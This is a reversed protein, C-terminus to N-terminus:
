KVFLSKLKHPLSKLLKALRVVYHAGVREYRRMQCDQEALLQQARILEAELGGIEKNSELRSIRDHVAILRTDLDVLCNWLFQMRGDAERPNNPIEMKRLFFRGGLVRFADPAM